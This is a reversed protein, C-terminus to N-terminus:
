TGTVSSSVPAEAASGEGRDDDHRQRAPLRLRPPVAPPGALRQYLCARHGARVRRHNVLRRLRQDSADRATSDNRSRDHSNPTEQQGSTPTCRCPPQRTPGAAVAPSPRSTQVAVLARPPWGTASTMFASGMWSSSRAYLPSDNPPVTQIGRSSASLTVPSSTPVRPCSPAPPSRPKSPDGATPASCTSRPRISRSRGGLRRRQRTRSRAARSRASRAPGASPRPTSTTTPGACVACSAGAPTGSLAGLRLFLALPKSAESIM